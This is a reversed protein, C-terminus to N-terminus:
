FNPVQFLTIGYRAVETTWLDIRQWNTNNVVWKITKKEGPQVIYLGTEPDRYGGFEKIFWKRHETMDKQHWHGTDHFAVIAGPQLLELLNKVVKINDEAQHSADVFVLDPVGNTFEIPEKMDQEILKVRDAGWKNQLRKVENSIKIDVGYIFPVGANLWVELSKGILCGVELVVRPRVMKCLGYMFLAEDESIPGLTVSDYSDLFEINYKM